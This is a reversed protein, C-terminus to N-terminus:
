KSALCALLTYLHLRRIAQRTFDQILAFCEFLDDRGGFERLQGPAGDFLRRQCAVQELLLRLALGQFPHSQVIKQLLDIRNDHRALKGAQVVIERGRAISALQTEVRALAAQDPADVLAPAFEQQGAALLGPLLAARTGGVQNLLTGEVL